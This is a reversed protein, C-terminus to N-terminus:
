WNMWCPCPINSTRNSEVIRCDWYRHAGTCMCVLNTTTPMPASLDRKTEFNFSSVQPEWLLLSSQKGHSNDLSTSVPAHLISVSDLSTKSRCWAMGISVQLSNSQPSPSTLRVTKYSLSNINGQSQSLTSFTSTLSKVCKWFSVWQCCAQSHEQSQSSQMLWCAWDSLSVIHVSVDLNANHDKTLFM